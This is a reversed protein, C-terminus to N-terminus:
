PPKVPALNCWAATQMTDKNIAGNVKRPVFYDIAAQITCAANNAGRHLAQLKAIVPNGVQKVENRVIIEVWLVRQKEGQFWFRSLFTEFFYNFTAFVSLEFPCFNAFYNLHWLIAFHILFAVFLPSFLCPCFRSFHCLILCFLCFLPGATRM